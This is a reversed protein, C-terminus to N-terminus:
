QNKMHSVPLRKGTYPCEGQNQEVWLKARELDKRSPPQPIGCEKHMREALARNEAERKRNNATENLRKSRPKKLERALEIRIEYPKGYERVIANVVKRMETISREVAPNRLGNAISAMLTDQPPPTGNRFHKRHPRLVPIIPHVTAGSFRNGYIETEAEKFSKGARMLPLIKGLAVLSLSCYDGPAKENVLVNAGAEDLGWHEMAEHKLDEDKESNRWNEIIQNQKGESFEKWREGFVKRMSQATINGKLEKAKGRELNFQATKPLGLHQKIKAFTQTGHNELLDFVAARGTENLPLENGNEEILRLDNVKQLVRFEQAPLVAWPARRKGPELECKGVLHKQASVPRQFFLLSWIRDHLEPTLLEAHYEKQKDWIKEFEKEFMKRGTWQRRVKQEHPDIGALYEGLTKAGATQIAQELEHIASKVQGQDESDKTKKKVEKRNSQFGRRQSLHFFVRGLEDLALPEYLAKKRLAYLPM